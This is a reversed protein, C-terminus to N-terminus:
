LCMGVEKDNIYIDDLQKFFIFRLINRDIGPSEQKVCENPTDLHKRITGWIVPPIPPPGNSERWGFM